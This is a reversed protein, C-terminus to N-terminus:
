RSSRLSPAPTNDNASSLWGWRDGSFIMSVAAQSVGFRLGIERQSGTGKAALIQVVTADDLKSMGHKSGRNSTGHEVRDNQNETRTAWRLHTPNCCGGAGNGCSHAAEHQDSPAPGYIAECARRHVYRSGPTPLDVQGYGFGGRSFPWILCEDGEFRLVVDEYYRRAEGKYTTGGVPDGHREWRHYHMGCWGRAIHPKDCGEITCTKKM